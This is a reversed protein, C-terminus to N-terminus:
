SKMEFHGMDKKKWRGGWVLGIKEGIVGIKQWIPDNSDWKLKDPGHLNWQDFPCVDIALGYLHKSDKTWSTGKRLNEEHEAKTRLTDVIMACIGAETMRALLEIAFPKFKPHLDDLNRSM